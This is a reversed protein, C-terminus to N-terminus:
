RAARCSMLNDFACRVAQRIEEKDEPKVPKLAHYFIGEKRLKRIVPLSSDDSVLIITLDRNCKKLLPILDSAKFEDFESGLLVVQAAKKLIGYIANAASNTVIVNYGAEIFLDALQKRAETDNDAILLGLM